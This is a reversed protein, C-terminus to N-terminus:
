KEQRQLPLPPLNGRLNSLFENPQGSLWPFTDRGGIWTKPHFPPFPWWASGVFFQAFTWQCSSYHKSAFLVLFWLSDRTDSCGTYQSRWRSVGGGLWIRFLLEPKSFQPWSQPNAFPLTNFDRLVIRWKAWLLLSHAIVFLSFDSYDDRLHHIKM